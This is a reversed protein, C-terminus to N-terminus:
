IENKLLVSKINANIACEIDLLRDGIYYCNNKDINYKNVLYNIADPSPKRNYGMDSTIIEDFLDLIGNNKLIDITNKGRHTFIMNFNGTSKIYELAEKANKQLKIENVRKSGLKLYSENIYEKNIGFSKELKTLYESVSSSIIEKKLDEISIKYGNDELTAKLSSLIVTYSDILTGDLDWIFYKM